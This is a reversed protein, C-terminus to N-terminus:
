GLAGPGGEHVQEEGFGGTLAQQYVRHAPSGHLGPGEGEPLLAVQQHVVVRRNTAVCARQEFFRGRRAALDGVSIRRRDFPASIRRAALLDERADARCTMMQPAAGVRVDPGVERGHTM